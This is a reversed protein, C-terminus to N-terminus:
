DTCIGCSKECVESYPKGHWETGWASVSGNNCQWESMNGGQCFQPQWDYCGPQRTTVDEPRVCFKCTRQCLKGVPFGDWKHGYEHYTGGTCAGSNPNSEYDNDPCAAPLADFCTNGDEDTEPISNDFVCNGVTFYKSCEKACLEKLPHQDVAPNSSEWHKGNLCQDKTLGGQCAFPYANKCESDDNNEETTTRKTTTSTTMTTMTTTTTTTTIHEHCTMCNVPCAVNMPLGDVSSGKRDYTGSQCTESGPFNENIDMKDYCDNAKNHCNRPCKGCTNPCMDWIWVGEDYLQTTCEVSDPHRADEPIIKLCKWTPLVDKCETVGETTRKAQLTSILLLISNM